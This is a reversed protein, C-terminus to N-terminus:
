PADALANCNPYFAIEPHHQVQHDGAAQVPTRSSCLQRSALAQCSEIKGVSREHECFPVFCRADNYRKAPSSAKCATSGPPISTKLLLRAENRSASVASVRVSLLASVSGRIRLPM